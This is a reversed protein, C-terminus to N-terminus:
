RRGGRGNGGAAHTACSRAYCHTARSHLPCNPGNCLASSPNAAHLKCNAFTTTPPPNNNGNNNSNSSNNRGSLPPRSNSRGRSSSAQSFAPTFRNGSRGTSSRNGRQPGRSRQGAVANVDAPTDEAQGASEINDSNNRNANQSQPPQAVANINANINLPQGDKGFHSDALTATAAADLGEVKDQLLKRVDSPLSRLVLQKQLDDISVDKAKDKVLALFDSPRRGDRKIGDLYVSCRTEKTPGFTDIMYAMFAKWSDATAEGFMFDNIKPGMNVGIISELFAFKQKPDTIEERAYAAEVRQVWIHINTKDLAPLDPRKRRQTAAIPQPAHIGAAALANLALTAANAAATTTELARAIQDKTARLDNNERRAAEAIERIEQASANEPIEDELAMTAPAIPRHNTSAPTVVPFRFAGEANHSPSPSRSGWNSRGIGRLGQIQQVSLHSLDQSARTQRSSM